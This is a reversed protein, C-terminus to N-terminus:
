GHRRWVMHRVVTFLSEVCWGTRSAVKGLSCSRQGGAGPHNARGRGAVKAEEQGQAGGGPAEAGALAFTQHWRWTGVLYDISPALASRGPLGACVGAPCAPPCAPPRSPLSAYQLAIYCLMSCCSM